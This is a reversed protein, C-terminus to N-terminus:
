LVPGSGETGPDPEGPGGNQFGFNFVPPPLAAMGDPDTAATKVPKDLGQLRARREAVKLLIEASRPEGRDAWHANWIGDLRELELEILDDAMAISHERTDALAAMLHGHVVGKSRGVKKGIAAISLGQLRFQLIQERLVATTVMRKVDRRKKPKPETM